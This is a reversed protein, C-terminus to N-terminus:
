GLHRVTINGTNEQCNIDKLKQLLPCNRRDILGWWPFLHQKCRAMLDDIGSWLAEFESKEDESM